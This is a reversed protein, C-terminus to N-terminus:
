PVVCGGNTNAIYHAMADACRQDGRHHTGHDFSMSCFRGIGTAKECLQVALKRSNQFLSARKDEYRHEVADDIYPPSRASRERPDGVAM